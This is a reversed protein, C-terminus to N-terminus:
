FYYKLNLTNLRERYDSKVSIANPRTDIFDSGTFPQEKRPSSCVESWPRANWEYNLSAMVSELVQGYVFLVSILSCIKVDFKILSLTIVFLILKNNLSFPTDNHSVVAASEASQSTM